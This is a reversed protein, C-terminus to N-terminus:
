CIGYIDCNIAGTYIGTASKLLQCICVWYNGKGQTAQWHLLDQHDQVRLYCTKCHYIFFKVIYSNLLINLQKAKPKKINWVAFVENPVKVIDAMKRGIKANLWGFDM